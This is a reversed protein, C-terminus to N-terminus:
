RRSPGLSFARETYGAGLLTKRENYSLRTWLGSYRAPASEPSLIDRLNDALTPDCQDLVHVYETIAIFARVRTPHEAVPPVPRKSTKKM